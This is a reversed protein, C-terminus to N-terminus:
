FEKESIKSNSKRKKKVYYYCVKYEASSGSQLDSQINGPDLYAISM